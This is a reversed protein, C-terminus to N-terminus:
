RPRFFRYKLVADMPIVDLPRVMDFLDNRVFFVVLCPGIFEVLMDIAKNRMCPTMNLSIYTTQSELSVLRKRM